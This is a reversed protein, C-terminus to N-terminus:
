STRPSKVGIWTGATGQLVNKGLRTCVEPTFSTHALENWYTLFNTNLADPTTHVRQLSPLADLLFTKHEFGATALRAVLITVREKTEPHKAQRKHAEFLNEIHTDITQEHRDVFLRLDEPSIDKSELILQNRRLIMQPQFTINDSSKNM